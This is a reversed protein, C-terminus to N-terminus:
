FALLQQQVGLGAGKASIFVADHHPLSVLATDATSVLCNGSSVLAHSFSARVELSFCVELGISFKM